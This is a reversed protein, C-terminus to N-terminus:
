QNDKLLNIFTEFIQKSTHRKWYKQMIPLMYKFNHQESIYEPFFTNLDSFNMENDVIFQQSLQNIFSTDVKINDKDKKEKEKENTTNNKFENLKSELDLRNLIVDRLKKIENKLFNKDIGTKIIM